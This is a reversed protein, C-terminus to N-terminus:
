TEVLLANVELHPVLWQYGMIVVHAVKCPPIVRFGLLNANGVEISNLGPSQWNAMMVRGLTVWISNM